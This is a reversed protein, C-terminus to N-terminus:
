AVVVGVDIRHAVAVGVAEAELQFGNRVLPKGNCHHAHILYLCDNGAVLTLGYLEGGDDDGLRARVVDDHPDLGAPHAVGVEGVLLAVHLVSVREEEAMFCCAHNFGDALAHGVDGGAIEDNQVPAGHAAFTAGALTAFRM